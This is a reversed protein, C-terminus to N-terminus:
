IKVGAAVRVAKVIAWQTRNAEDASRPWGALAHFRQQNAGTVFQEYPILGIPVGGRYEMSKADNYIKVTISTETARTEYHWGYRLGGTRATPINRGFGKSAWFTRQQKVSTWLIGWGLKPPPQIPAVRNIFAPIAHNRIDALAKQQVDKPLRGSLLPFAEIIGAINTKLTADLLRTM